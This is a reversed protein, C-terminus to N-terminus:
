TIILNWTYWYLLNIWNDMKEKIDLLLWIFHHNLKTGIDTKIKNELSLLRKASNDIAEQNSNSLKIEIPALRGDDLQIIADIEFDNRDRYFYLEAGINQCFVKLDKIVQNEFYIGFLRPDEILYKSNKIKM